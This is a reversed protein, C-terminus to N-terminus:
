ESARPSSGTSILYLAREAHHVLLPEVESLSQKGALRPLQHRAKEVDAQTIRGTAALLASVALLGSTLVESEHELEAIRLLARSLRAELNELDTNVGRGEPPLESTM